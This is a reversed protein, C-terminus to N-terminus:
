HEDGQHLGLLAQGIQLSQGTSTILPLDLQVKELTSVLSCQLPVIEYVNLTHLEEALFLNELRKSLM